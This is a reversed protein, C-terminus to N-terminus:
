LLARARDAPVAAQQTAPVEGRWRRRTYGFGGYKPDFDEALSEEAATILSDDLKALAAPRREMRSAHTNPSPRPMASLAPPEEDFTRFRRASNPLRPVKATATAPPFYTGGFFPELDPTLFLSLPWGGAADCDNCATM